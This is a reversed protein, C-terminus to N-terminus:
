IKKWTSALAVGWEFKRKHQRLLFPLDFVRQRQFDPSLLSFIEEERLWKERPTYAELWSYPSTLILQGGKLVARKLTQLFLKPDPLRCLLNAALVVHFPEAKQLYELADGQKFTVRKPDIGDPIKAVLKEKDVGEGPIIYELQGHAQIAKATQIFRKSSDIGTVHSCFRSLEFSSRGVACGLDLALANPPLAAMNLGEQVCRVPFNLSDKPGFNYPLQEKEKGYHFLLYQGLTTDEEYFTM